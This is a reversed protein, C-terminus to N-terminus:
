SKSTSHLKVIEAAVECRDHLTTVVRCPQPCRACIAVVKHCGQSLRALNSCGMIHTGYWVWIIPISHFVEPVKFTQDFKHKSTKAKNYLLLYNNHNHTISKLTKIINVIFKNKCHM